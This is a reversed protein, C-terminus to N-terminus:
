KQTLEERVFHKKGVLLLVAGLFFLLIISLIGISNRGTIDKFFAMLAPGMITAFKGLIDFFSFYENSQAPPVLKSFYSRSLAQIGGQVCGVLVAMIWFLVQARAVAQQQVEQAAGEVQEVSFGMYFGVCCIVVYVGIAALIMRIAGAKGAIHSFAISCPVAVVQTVLLALIMGVSDLGITQGYSTSMHIVTGVGDIYCFYALIFFLMGKNGCINRITHGINKMSETFMKGAPADIFHKQKVNKIMPISFLAWWVATIVISIKVALPNSMGLVLLVAISIIFPITSGGIYGMAYGWSSVKDMRERTTIDTLFSDYFLNSLAYGIYSIIYGVLLLKWNDFFAMVLTFLMGIVAFSVFLKKKVGQHDALAGLIPAAVAVIATAISTGYGWTQIEDVGSSSCVAAFYIPFIAAMINTAYVSNAWDYLIWSQETHNFRKKLGLM